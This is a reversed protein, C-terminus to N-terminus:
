KPSAVLSSLAHLLGHSKCDEPLLVVDFDSPPTTAVGSRSKPSAKTNVPSRASDDNHLKPLPYGLVGTLVKWATTYIMYDKESKGRLVWPQLCKNWSVSGDLGNKFVRANLFTQQVNYCRCCIIPSELNLDICTTTEGIRHRRGSSRSGSRCSSM